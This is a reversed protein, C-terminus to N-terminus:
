GYQHYVKTLHQRRSSRPSLEAIRKAASNSIHSQSDSIKFHLCYHWGITDRKISFFISNIKLLDIEHLEINGPRMSQTQREISLWTRQNKDENPFTAKTSNGLRPLGSDCAEQSHPPSVSLQHSFIACSFINLM